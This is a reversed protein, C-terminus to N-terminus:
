HVILESFMKQINPFIQNSDISDEEEMEEANM